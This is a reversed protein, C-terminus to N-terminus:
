SHEILTGGRAQAGHEVRERLARVGAAVAAGAAAGGLVFLGGLGVAGVAMGVAVAARALAGPALPAGLLGGALLAGAYGGYLLGPALGVGFFASLGLAAGVLTYQRRSM